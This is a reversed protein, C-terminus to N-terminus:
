FVWDHLRKREVKLIQWAPLISGGLPGTKAWLGYTQCGQNLPHRDSRVIVDLLPWTILDFEVWKQEVWWDFTVPVNLRLDVILWFIDSSPQFTLHFVLLFSRNWGPCIPPQPRWHPPAVLVTSWHSVKQIEVRAYQWNLSAMSPSPHSNLM